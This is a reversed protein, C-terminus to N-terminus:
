NREPLEFMSDPLADNVTVHESRMESYMETDRERATAHPWMVGGGADRYKTYRTVEERRDNIIPDWRYYRQKVPLFTNANVWM